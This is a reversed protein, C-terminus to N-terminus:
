MLSVPIGQRRNGENSILLNDNELIVIGEFDVSARPYYVNANNKLFVVETPEVKFEPLASIRASYYRAPNFRARDDSIIHYTALSEDYTIGSLGNFRTGAFYFNPPFNADDLFELSVTKALCPEIIFFITM